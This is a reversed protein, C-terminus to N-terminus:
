CCAEFCVEGKAAKMGASIPAYLYVKNCVTGEDRQTGGTQRPDTRFGLSAITRMNRCNPGSKPRGDGFRGCHSLLLLIRLCLMQYHLRLRRCCSNCQESLTNNNDRPVVVRLKISEYDRTRAKNFSM